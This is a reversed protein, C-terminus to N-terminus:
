AMPPANLIITWVNNRQRQGCSKCNGLRQGNVDVGVTGALLGILLDDLDDPLVPVQTWTDDDLLEVELLRLVELGGRVTVETRRPGKM